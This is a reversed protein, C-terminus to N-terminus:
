AVGVRGVDPYGGGDPFRTRRTGAGATAATDQGVQDAATAATATEGTGTKHRCAFGLVRRAPAAHAAPHWGIM